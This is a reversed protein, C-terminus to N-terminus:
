ALRSAGVVVGGMVGRSGGSFLVLCAGRFLPSVRAALSAGPLGGLSAAAGCLAGTEGIWNTIM